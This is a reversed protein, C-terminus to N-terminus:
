CTKPIDNFRNFYRCLGSDTVNNWGDATLAESNASEGVVLKISALFLYAAISLMAGREGMKIKKYKEENKM